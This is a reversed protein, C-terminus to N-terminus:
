FPQLARTVMICCWPYAQTEYTKSKVQAFTSDVAFLDNQMIQRGDAATACMHELLFQLQSEVVPHLIVFSRTQRQLLLHCFYFRPMRCLPAAPPFDLAVSGACYM